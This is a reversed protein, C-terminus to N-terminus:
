VVDIMRTKHRMEERVEFGSYESDVMSNMEISEPVDKSDDFPKENSGTRVHRFHSHTTAAEGAAEVLEVPEGDFLAGTEELTRGSPL